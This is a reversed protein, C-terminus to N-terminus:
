CSFLPLCPFCVLHQIKQKGGDGRERGKDKPM